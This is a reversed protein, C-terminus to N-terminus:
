KKTQPTTRRRLTPRDKDDADVDRIETRPRYALIEIEEPLEIAEPPLPDNLTITEWQLRITQGMAQTETLFPLKVAGVTRYDGLILNLKVTGANIELRVPLFTQRDYCVTQMAGSNEPWIHVIFCPKGNVMDLGATEIKSYNDAVALATPDPQLLNGPTSAVRRIKPGTLTSREWEVDGNNGAEIKGAGPMEIIQYMEGRQSRYTIITGSIGAAPVGMTGVLKQTKISKQADIGGAAAAARSLITKAEPLATGREINKVPNKAPPPSPQALALAAATLGFALLKV